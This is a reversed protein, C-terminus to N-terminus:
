RDRYFKMFEIGSAMVIRWALEVSATAKPDLEAVTAVLCDLWTVYFTPPIDHGRVWHVRALTLLYPNSKPALAFSSMETLSEALMKKQHEMSVAKFKDRVLPDATIFREYFRTLFREHLTPATVRAMSAQFEVVYDVVRGDECLRLAPPVDRVLVGRSAVGFV